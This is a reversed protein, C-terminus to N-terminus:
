MVSKVIDKIKEKNPFYAQELVHCSPVPTDPLTIVKVPAKL